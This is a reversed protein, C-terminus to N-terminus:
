AVVKKPRRKRQNSNQQSPTAWRCNSPEYNGNVDIRDITTGSPREGMDALFSEFSMWRPCISIGRGGYSPFSKQKPNLCRQKMADWSKYTRTSHMGHRLTGYNLAQHPHHQYVGKPM